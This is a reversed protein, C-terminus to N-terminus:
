IIICNELDNNKESFHFDSHFGDDDDYFANIWIFFFLNCLLQKVIV